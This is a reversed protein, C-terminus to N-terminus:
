VLVCKLLNTQKIFMKQNMENLHMMHYFLIIDSCNVQNKVVRDTLTIVPNGTRSTCAVETGKNVQLQMNSRVIEWKSTHKKQAVHKVLAKKGSSGYHLEDQCVTCFIHGPRRIKKMCDALLVSQENKKSDLFVVTEQLWQERFKNTVGKEIEKINDGPKLFDPMKHIIDSVYLMIHRIFVLHLYEM